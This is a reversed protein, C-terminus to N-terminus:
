HYFVFLGAAYCCQGGEDSHLEDSRSQSEVVDNSMTALVPRINMGSKSNDKKDAPPPLFTTTEKRAKANDVFKVSKIPNKIPSGIKEHKMQSRNVFNERDHLALSSNVHAKTGANQDALSSKGNGAANSERAHMVYKTLKAVSDNKKKHSKESLSSSVHSSPLEKSKSSHSSPLMIKLKKIMGSGGGTDTEDIKHKRSEFNTFPKEDQDKGKIPPVKVTKKVPHTEPLKNDDDDDSPCLKMNEDRSPLGAAAQNELILHKDAEDRRRWLEDVADNTNKVQM